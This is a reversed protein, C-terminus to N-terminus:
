KNPADLEAATWMQMPARDKIKNRVVSVEFPSKTGNLLDTILAGACFSGTCVIKM